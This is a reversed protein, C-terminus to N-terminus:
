LGAPRCGDRRGDAHGPPEREPDARRVLRDDLPHEPQRVFGRPPVRVLVDLDDGGEEPPLRHAEGALLEPDVSPRGVPDAVPLDGDEHRRQTGAQQANRALV